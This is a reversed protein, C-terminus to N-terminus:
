HRAVLVRLQGLRDLVLDEPQVRGPQEVHVHLRPPLRDTRVPQRADALLPPLIRLRAVRLVAPEPDLVAAPGGDGDALVNSLNAAFGAPVTVPLQGERPKPLARQPLKGPLTGVRPLYM